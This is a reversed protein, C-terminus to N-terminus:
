LPNCDLCNSGMSPAEIFNDSGCVDCLTGEPVVVNPTNLAQNQMRNVCDCLGNKVKNESCAIFCNIEEALEDTIFESKYWNKINEM